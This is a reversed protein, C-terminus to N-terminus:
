FKKFRLLTTHTVVHKFGFHLGITKFPRFLKIGFYQFKRFDIGPRTQWVIKSIIKFSDTIKIIFCDTCFTKSYKGQVGKPLKIHDFNYKSLLIVVIFGVHDM